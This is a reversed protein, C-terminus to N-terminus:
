EQGEMRLKEIIEELKTSSEATDEGEAYAITEQLVAVAEDRATQRSLRMQAFDTEQVSVQTSLETTDNIVLTADGMIKDADLGASIAGEATKEAHPGFAFLM